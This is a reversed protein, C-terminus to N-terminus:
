ASAENLREIAAPKLQLKTAAILENLQEVNTASAIPASICPRSSLWAISVQAPTSDHEAAVEDLAELIRQGRENLYKRNGEGRPSKSLDAESRYKGTLFGSALAYYPLVGLGKEVCLPEITKEYDERDYLNYHPQITEYRPLGLRESVELAEALREGTYNSAGIARV